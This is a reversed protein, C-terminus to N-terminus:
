INEFSEPVEEYSTEEVTEVVEVNSQLAAIRAQLEEFYEKECGLEIELYAKHFEGVVARLYLEENARQIFKQNRRASKVKIKVNKERNSM